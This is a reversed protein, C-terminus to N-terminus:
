PGDNGYALIPRGPRQRDEGAAVGRPTDTRRRKGPGRAVQHRAPVRNAPRVEPGAPVLEVAEEHEHVDEVRPDEPRDEGAAVGRPTDTRRRKGPGRAVQHRAPTFILQETSTGVFDVGRISRYLCILPRKLPRPM